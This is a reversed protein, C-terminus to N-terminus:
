FSSVTGLAQEGIRRWPDEKFITGNVYAVFEPSRITPEDWPTNGVLLTFLIVGCGWVDVPEANYPQENALEPAVYPLSGCRETLMRTRGTDKLKYVASLGFDSIKLTGAADLLLNEPKLDRHCVGQSHIYQMGDIVQQFYYHALDDSVGKDPAIKDFLDGGAALELLIYIGPHYTHRHKLEVIIANLFELVNKHKLASHVRMEKEVNKREKDSTKDSIAIVKCAAVRHEKFNTARYVYTRLLSSLMKEYEMYEMGLVRKSKENNYSLMTVESRDFDPIKKTIPVKLPPLDDLSNAHEIAEVWELSGGSVIIREGGAEQRKLAEVHARAADRVDVYPCSGKLTNPFSPDSSSDKIVVNFWWQVAAAIPFGSILNPGLVFPPNLVVLDWGGGEKEDKKSERHYEWAAREALTKSARYKVFDSAKNGQEELIDPDRGWDEETFVTHSTLPYRSIASTSSTYVVRKVTSHPSSTSSKLLNLTGERAPKIYEDADVGGGEPGIAASGVQVPSALHIVADVGKVAEEFASEKLFDEVVFFELKGTDGLYSAFFEKLKVTKWSTEDRVVARVRFGDELLYKIVWPGIYGTGGTVLVKPPPTQSGSLIAPM